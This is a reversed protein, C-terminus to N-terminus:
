PDASAGIRRAVGRRATNGSGSRVVDAAGIAGAVVAAVEVLGAGDPKTADADVCEAVAADVGKPVAAAVGEAAAVDAGKAVAAAVGKAVAAGVAGDEEGGRCAPDGAWNSRRALSDVLRGAPEIVGVVTDSIRCDQIAGGAPTSLRAGPGATGSTAAACDPAAAARGAVPWGGAGGGDASGSFLTM